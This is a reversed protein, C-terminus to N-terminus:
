KELTLFTYPIEGDNREEKEIVKTFASYDPFFTDAHYDGKVLTLYLRDVYPLTQAFIKAGGLIFVEDKELQKAKTLAEEVSTVAFGKDSEVRYTADHTVVIHIRQSMTPKGSKSYYSLLSEYTTRGLIAVHGLTLNKLRVLDAKIHWPVTNDKGIGNKEDLAVIASIRM